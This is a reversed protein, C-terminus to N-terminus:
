YANLYYIALHSSKLDIPPIFLWKSYINDVIPMLRIHEFVKSCFIIYLMYRCIISQILGKVKEIVERLFPLQHSLVASIVM